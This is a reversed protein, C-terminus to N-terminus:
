ALKYNGACHTLAADVVPGRMLDGVPEMECVPHFTTTDTHTYTQKNTQEGCPVPGRTFTRPATTRQARLSINSLRRMAMSM